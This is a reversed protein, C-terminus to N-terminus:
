RKTSWCPVSLLCRTWRGGQAADDREFHAHDMCIGYLALEARASDPADITAVLTLPETVLSGDNGILDLM